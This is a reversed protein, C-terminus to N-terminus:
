QLTARCIIQEAEIDVGQEDTISRVTERKPFIRDSSDKDQAADQFTHALSSKMAGNPAYIAFARRKSFDFDLKLSKIGYCNKLDVTVLNM